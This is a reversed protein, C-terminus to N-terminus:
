RTSSIQTSPRTARKNVGEFTFLMRSKWRYVPLSAIDTLNKFVSQVTHPKLQYGFAGCLLRQNEGPQQAIIGLDDNKQLDDKIKEVTRGTAQATAWVASIGCKM